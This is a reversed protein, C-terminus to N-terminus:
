VLSIKTRMTRQGEYETSVPCKRKKRLAYVHRSGREEKKRGRKGRMRNIAICLYNHVEPFRNCSLKELQQLLITVIRVIQSM